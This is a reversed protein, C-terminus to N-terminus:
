KEKEKLVNNFLKENMYKTFDGNKITALKDYREMEEIGKEAVEGENM